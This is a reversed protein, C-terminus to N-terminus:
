AKLTTVGAVGKARPPIKAIKAAAEAKVQKLRKPDRLLEEARARKEAVLEDTLLQGFTRLPAIQFQHRRFLRYIEKVRAPQVDRGLTFCEFREEMALLAAEALCAYSVHPPLGINFSFDVPGPIMVEGSEVVLVDPRVAAEEASIDPPLAVDLIVAGPKCQSVDLVRLGFASTATVILDCDGVRNVTSVDVEVNADPTEELITRKLADLRPPEISVLVVDKVAAALLRSCVSGIAGTAGVVMAKGRALSPWGMRIATLKATELTAAITLSNGTTVPIPARKAVTVGADGVVKTFAGLGAIKAGRDAADQVAANLRQYTFEPPRTLMQRPTAGLAYILGDVPKGTAPSRGGSVTGVYRAPMYAATTEVWDRPLHRTWAYRPHNGLYDITLPHLIFAFRHGQAKTTTESRGSRARAAM